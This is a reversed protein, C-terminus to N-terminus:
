MAPTNSSMNNYKTPFILNIIYLGIVLIFVLLVCICCGINSARSHKYCSGFCCKPDEIRVIYEENKNKIISAYKKQIETPLNAFKDIPYKTELSITHSENNIVIESVLLNKSEILYIPIIGFNETNLKFLEYPEEGENNGSKPSYELPIITNYNDEINHNCTFNDSIITSIKKNEMEALLATSKNYNNICLKEEKAKKNKHLIEAYSLYSQMNKDNNKSMSCRSFILIICIPFLFKLYNM